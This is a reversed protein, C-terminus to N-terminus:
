VTMTEIADSCVFYMVIIFMTSYLMGHIPIVQNLKSTINNFLVCRIYKKRLSESKGLPIHARPLGLVVPM